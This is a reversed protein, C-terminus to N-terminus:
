SAMEVRMKEGDAEVVGKAKGEGRGERKRRLLWAGVAAVLVGVGAVSGVAAGAIVGGSREQGVAVSGTTM